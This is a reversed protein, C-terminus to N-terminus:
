EIGEISAFANLVASRLASPDDIMENSNGDHKGLQFIAYPIDIITYQHEKDNNDTKYDYGSKFSSDDKKSAIARFYFGSPCIASVVVKHIQFLEGDACYSLGDNAMIKVQKQFTEQNLINRIQQCEKIMEYNNSHVWWSPFELSNNNNKNNRSSDHLLLMLEKVGNSNFFRQDRDRQQIIRQAEMDLEFINNLVCTETEDDNNNCLHPYSVPVLLTVCESEDCVVASLEIHDDTVKNIHIHNIQELNLAQQPPSFAVALRALSAINDRNHSLNYAISSHLKHLSNILPEREKDFVSNFSHNIDDEDYLEGIITAFYKPRRTQTRLKGQHFSFSSVSNM